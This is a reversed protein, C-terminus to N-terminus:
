VAFIGCCMYCVDMCGVDCMVCVISLVCMNLTLCLVYLLFVVFLALGTDYVVCTLLCCVNGVDCVSYLVYEGYVYVIDHVTCM